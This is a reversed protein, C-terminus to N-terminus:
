VYNFETGLRRRRIVMAGVQLEKVDEETNDDMSTDLESMTESRQGSYDSFSESPAGGSAESETLQEDTDALSQLAASNGHVRLDVLLTAIMKDKNRNIMEGAITPHQEDDPRRFWSAGCKSNGPKYFFSVILALSLVAAVSVATLTIILSDLSRHKGQVLDRESSVYYDYLPSDPHPIVQDDDDPQTSQLFIVNGEPLNKQNQEDCAGLFPAYGELFFDSRECMCKGIVYNCQGGTGLCDFTCYFTPCIRRPDPCVVTISGHNIEQGSEECVHWSEEVKIRLSRDEVVCAIPLCLATNRKTSDLSGLLCRSNREGFREIESALMSEKTDVSACLGNDFGLYVPCYDMLPDKGGVDSGYTEQFYRYEWPLDLDYHGMSCTAKRSLDPTCGDVEFASSQSGTIENCFFPTNQPPVDGNEGICAENVFGCGAGRGWGSAVRSGSLDIQYWGSDAFYALTLTSIRPSYDLDDVVPNMLDGSFLRREWHDGLCGFSEELTTLPLGEGSELEAGTLSQCGFQNRVVQVVSPTVLEAVRVGGRVERFQLIETSPLAVKARRRESLPGTCEIETDPVDGDVRHTYPTGDVRRFHAMSLSNFGLAHGLEHMLTLTNQHRRQPEFFLEDICIHLLAATPRDYQDTSCFSAAALFDGNCIGNSTIDGLLDETENYLADMTANTTRDSAEISLEGDVETRQNMEDSTYQDIYTSNTLKTRPYAFGISLYVMMDTDAIGENLHSHPVRISPLGSDTGPGCTEGDLLQAMDVTLNGVVPDVRLTSSWALLAPSLIDYFLADRESQTLLEGNGEFEALIARIRIPQFIEIEAEAEDNSANVQSFNSDIEATTTFIATENVTVNTVETTMNVSTVNANEEQGIFQEFLSRISDHFSYPSRSSPGNSTATDEVSSGGQVYVSWFSDQEDSYHEIEVSVKRNEQLRRKGKNVSSPIRFKSYMGRPREELVHKYDISREPRRVRHQLSPTTATAASFWTLLAILSLPSQKENSM